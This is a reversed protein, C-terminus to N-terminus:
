RWEFMLRTEVLRVDGPTLSTCASLCAPLSIGVSTILDPCLMIICKLNTQLYLLTFFYHLMVCACVNLRYNVIACACVLM